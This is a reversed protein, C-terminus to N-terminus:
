GIALITSADQWHAAPYTQGVNEIVLYDNQEEVAENGVGGGKMEM